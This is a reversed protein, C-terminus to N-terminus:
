RRGKRAPQEERDLLWQRVAERRYMVTRGIVIRPPAVREVHWRALTRPSVGLERALAEPSLFEGSLLPERGTVAQDLQLLAEDSPASM